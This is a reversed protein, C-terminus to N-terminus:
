LGRWPWQSMSGRKEFPIRVADHAGVDGTGKIMRPMERVLTADKPAVTSAVRGIRAPLNPPKRIQCSLPLQRISSRPNLHNTPIFYDIMLQIYLM